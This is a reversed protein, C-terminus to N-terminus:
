GPKAADPERGGNRRAEFDSALALARDLVSEDAIWVETSAESDHLEGRAPFDRDEIVKGHIGHDQLVRLFRKAEATDWAVYVRHM